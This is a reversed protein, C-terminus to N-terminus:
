GSREVDSLDTAGEGREFEHNGKRFPPEIAATFEDRKLEIDILTGSLVNTSTIPFSLIRYSQIPLFRFAQSPIRAPKPPADIVGTTFCLVLLAHLIWCGQGPNGTISTAFGSRHAFCLVWLAYFIGVSGGTQSPSKGPKSANKRMLNASLRRSSAILMNRTM